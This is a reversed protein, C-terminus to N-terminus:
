PWSLGKVAEPVEIGGMAEALAKLGFGGGYSRGVGGGSHGTLADHLEETLGGDRCMRKFTHRFSHFVKNPDKVKATVRLYRSFWTSWPGARWGERDSVIDPWLDGGGDALSQRYRLLGVKVLHPHVPIMRESSATKISRGGATGIDFLWIGTEADQRLDELRLQVLEGQRAGSLLAILPLWFAAEGGGGKPRAGDGYVKTGFIARLDAADFFERREAEREDIPLKLGQFPNAYNPLKDLQGEHVAHAVIASMLNLAKGVTSASVPPLHALDRKLIERIPLKAVARPLRTRVRALADRFERAKAKDISGLRLDGHWEICRAVVRGAEGVASRGPKKAGKTAGGMAWKKLAESLKPGVGASPRAPAEVVKGGQRALLLEYGRVKARLVALGAERYAPSTPDFPVGHGKLYSRLEADIIATSRRANARQYEAAEEGLQLGLAYDYDEAMGKGGFDVAILDPWAEREKATQLHRRDDGDERVAEDDALMQAITDAEIDALSPMAGISRAPGKATPREGRMAREASEFAAACVPFIKSARAKAEAPKKTRLSLKYNAKGTWPPSMFPRLAPPVVRRFQYTGNRDKCLYTM